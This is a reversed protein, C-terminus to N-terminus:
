KSADTGSSPRKGSSETPLSDAQLTLSVPSELEIGPNPLDRPPPCPLGSWYEQRIFGLSLPAQRAVTWPIRWALISSHTAMAKELPDEWGLSQVRTELLAPLNTVSQAVLSFLIGISLTFYRLM